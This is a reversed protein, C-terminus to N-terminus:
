KAPAHKPKLDVLWSSVKYEPTDGNEQELGERVNQRWKAFFESKSQESNGILNKLQKALEHKSPPEGSTSPMLNFLTIQTQIYDMAEKRTRGVGKLYDFCAVVTSNFRDATLNVRGCHPGIKSKMNIRHLVDFDELGLRRSLIAGWLEMAIINHRNDVEMAKCLALIAELFGIVASQEAFAREKKNPNEAARRYADNVAANARRFLAADIDITDSM